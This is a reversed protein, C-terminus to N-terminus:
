IYTPHYTLFYCLISQSTWWFFVGIFTQSPINFARKEGAFVLAEGSLVWFFARALVAHPNLCIRPKLMLFMKKLNRGSIEGLIGHAEYIGHRGTPPYGGPVMPVVMAGAAAGQSEHVPGLSEAGHGCVWGAGRVGDGFGGAAAQGGTISQNTAIADRRAKLGGSITIDVM